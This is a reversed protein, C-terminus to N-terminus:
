RNKKKQKKKVTKEIDKHKHYHTPNLWCQILHVASHASDGADKGPKHSAPSPAGYVRYRVRTCLSEYLSACTYVRKHTSSASKHVQMDCCM